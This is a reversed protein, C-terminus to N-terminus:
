LAEMQRKKVMEYDRGLEELDKRPLYKRVWRFIDEEEEKLHHETFEELIEYKVAWRKHDHPFNELAALMFSIVYHEEEAEAAADGVEEKDLIHNLFYLEENRHHVELNKRLGGFRQKEHGAKQLLFRIEGHHKLLADVIDMM